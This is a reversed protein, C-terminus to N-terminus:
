AVVRGRALEGDGQALDRLRARDLLRVTGSNPLALVGVGRLRTMSRSVTEMTLGLADAMEQRTLPLVFTDVGGAMREAIDLLFAAVRGLASRSGVIMLQDCARMLEATCGAVLRRALLPDSEMAKDLACRPVRRLTTQRAAVAGVMYRGLSSLGILEGSFRLGHILRTGDVATRHLMVVGADVVFVAEADDGEHFIPERADFRIMQTPFPWLNAARLNVATELM